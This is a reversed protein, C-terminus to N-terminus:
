GKEPTIMKALRLLKSSIALGSAKAADPNIRLRIKGNEIALRVMGGAREFGDEDAVTLVSRGALASVIKPFQGAESGSIFLIHCDASDDGRRYRRVIIPHGGVKEGRVLEDLYSGFPDEGLVGIVIPAQATAFARAPWEIFQPFNFLFGAKVRYEASVTAPEPGAAARVGSLCTAAVFGLMCGRRVIRAIRGYFIPNLFEM